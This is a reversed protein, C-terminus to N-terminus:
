TPRAGAQESDVSARRLLVHELHELLRNLLVCALIKGAISLLSIGRHSNCDRCNGKRKYLHVISVDKFDQPLAEASWFTAFFETLKQSPAPGGAKYIEAPITDAGLAKGGCLLKSIAKTIEAASPPRDLEWNTEV